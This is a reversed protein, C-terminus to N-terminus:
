PVLSKEGHYPSFGLSHKFSGHRVQVVNIQDDFLECFVGNKLTAGTLGEALEAEFYLVWAAEVEDEHGDREKGVWTLKALAGSAGRVVFSKALYDIIRQDLQKAPTRAFTVTSEAVANLAHELDQEHVVLSIELRGSGNVWEVEASTQHGPHSWVSSSMLLFVAIALARKSAAKM